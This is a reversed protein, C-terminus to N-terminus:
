VQGSFSQLAKNASPRTYESEKLLMQVFEKMLASTKDEKPNSAHFQLPKSAQLIRYGDPYPLAAFALMLVKAIGCVACACKGNMKAHILLEVLVQPM